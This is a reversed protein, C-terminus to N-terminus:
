WGVAEIMAKEELAKIHPPKYRDEQGWGSSSVEIPTDRGWGGAGGDGIVGWRAVTDANVEELVLNGSNGDENEDGAVTGGFNVTADNIVSEGDKEQRWTPAVWSPRPKWPRTAVGNATHEHKYKCSEASYDCKGNNAWYWCTMNRKQEASVRSSPDVEPVTFSDPDAHGVAPSADALAGWTPRGM